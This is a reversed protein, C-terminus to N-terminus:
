LEGKNLKNCLDEAMQKANPFQMADISICWNLPHDSYIDFTMTGSNEYVKYQSM